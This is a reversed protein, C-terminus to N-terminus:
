GVLVFNLQGYALILQCILFVFSLCVWCYVFIGDSNMINYVTVFLYAYLFRVSLRSVTYMYFVLVFM